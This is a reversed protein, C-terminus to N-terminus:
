LDRAHTVMESSASEVVIEPAALGEPGERHLREYLLAVLAGLSMVLGSYYAWLVVLIILLFTDDLAARWGGDFGFNAAYVTVGTKAAEWLLAATVAGALAARKPPRPKPIFWYLQFFMAVSLLVPLAYLAGQALAGWLEAIFTGDVGLQDPASRGATQVFITVAVSALLLFGTQLAMQLDFLYGRLISRQEHWDENFIHDLVVRLTTFLTVSTIVIGIGGIITFRGSSEELTALFAVLEDAGYSPFLDRVAREIYFFPRDAQLFLGVLGTGLLLFPVLAILVKFGVAQAWLFVPKDRLERVLGTLYYRLYLSHGEM